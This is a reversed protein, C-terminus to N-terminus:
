LLFVEWSNQTHKFYNTLAGPMLGLEKELSRIAFIVAQADSRAVKYFLHNEGKYNL